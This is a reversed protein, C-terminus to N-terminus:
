FAYGVVFTPALTAYRGFARLGAHFNQSAACDISTVNVCTGVAHTDGVPTVPGDLLTIPVQVGLALRIAGLWAGVQLEPTATASVGNFGNGSNQAQIPVTHGDRSTGTGTVTDTARVFAAGVTVRGLVDFRGGFAIRYGVGVAAFPMSLSIEDEIAYIAPIKAARDATDFTRALTRSARAYGGQAVLQLGAPLEYVAAVGVRLGKPSSTQSCGGNAGYCWGSTGSDNGFSSAFGYGLSLEIGLRARKAAAWRPHERDIPIKVVVDGGTDGSEVVQRTTVYGEEAAEVSHVGVPLRGEWVGHGVAVGDIALSASRPEVLIRQEQGLPQLTVRVTVTQGAVVTAVRPATGADGKRVVLGHPGPGLTGEWPAEGLTAGDVVITAGECGDCEVRLRGSSTLAELKADLSSTEGVKVDVAAEFTAYGDRIVRVFHRGPLLRIPAALPLKGRPRGDVVVIGDVNSSLELRGIKAEMDAVDKKAKERVAPALQPEPYRTLAEEYLDYAEDYRGLQYLCAGANLTNSARPVLARSKSYAEYAAQYLGRARLSEGEEFYRKAEDVKSDPAAPAPASSSATPAGSSSADPARQPSVQGLAARPTALRAFALVFLSSAALRRRRRAPEHTPHM